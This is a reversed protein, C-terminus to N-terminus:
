VGLCKTEEQPVIRWGFQMMALLSHMELKTLPVRFEFQVKTASFIVPQQKETEKSM